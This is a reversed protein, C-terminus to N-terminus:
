YRKDRGSPLTRQLQQYYKSVTNQLPRGVTRDLVSGILGGIIQVGMDDSRIPSFPEKAAGDYSWVPRWTDATYLTYSASVENYSLVIAGFSKLRGTMIADVGLGEAIQPIRQEDVQGGMSIGFQNALMMDTKNIPLPVYGKRELLAVM